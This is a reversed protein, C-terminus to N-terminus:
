IPWIEDSVHETSAVRTDEVTTALNEGSLM